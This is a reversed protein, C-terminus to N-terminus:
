TAPSSTTATAMGIMRCRNIRFKAAWLSPMVTSSTTRCSILLAALATAAYSSVVSACLCLASFVSLLTHFLFIWQGLDRDSRRVQQAAVQRAMLGLSEARALVDPKLYSPMTNSLGGM